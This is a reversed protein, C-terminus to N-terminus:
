HEVAHNRRGDVGLDVVAFTVNVPVAYHPNWRWSASDTAPFTGPTALTSSSTSITGGPGLARSTWSEIL